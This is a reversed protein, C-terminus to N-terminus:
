QAPREELKVTIEQESGNRLITMKVEDGPNARLIQNRLDKVSEISKGNMATVIDGGIM